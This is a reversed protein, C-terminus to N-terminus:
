TALVLKGARAIRRTYLQDELKMRAHAGGTTRGTAEHIPFVDELRVTAQRAANMTMAREM